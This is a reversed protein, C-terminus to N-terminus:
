PALTTVSSSISLWQRLADAHNLIEVSEHNDFEIRYCSQTVQGLADTRSVDRICTVRDLNVISPGVRILNM